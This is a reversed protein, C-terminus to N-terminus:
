REMSSITREVIKKVDAESFPKSLMDIIPYTFARETLDKTDNGTIISVPIRKFLDYQKFYDLVQFGNVNPMNLDLLMGVVNNGERIVNIAEAGDKAIIVNIENSFIKHVFNVVLDSDDVVLLSKPNDINVATPQENVVESVVTETVNTEEQGFYQKVVSLAKDTDSELHAFDNKVFSHNNDKSELEHKYALDALENFGLYRAGSKLSHVQIAYNPMDNAELYGKALDVKEKAEDLFGELIDDYTEMDVLIELAKQVDVGNSTLLNVDRM